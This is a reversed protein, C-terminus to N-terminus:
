AKSAFLIKIKSNRGWWRVVEDNKIKERVIYRRGAVVEEAKRALEERINAEADM